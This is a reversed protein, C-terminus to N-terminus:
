KTANITVTPFPNYLSPPNTNVLSEIVIPIELPTCLSTIEVISLFEPTGKLKSTLLTKTSESIEDLKFTGTATGFHVLQQVEKPLVTTGYLTKNDIDIIDTPVYTWPYATDPSSLGTITPKDVKVWRGLNSIDCLVGLPCFTPVDNEIICLWDSSFLEQKHIAEIWKTLIANM